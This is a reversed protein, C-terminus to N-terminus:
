QSRETKLTNKLRNLAAILYKEVESLLFIMSRMFHSVRKFQFFSHLRNKGPFMKGM